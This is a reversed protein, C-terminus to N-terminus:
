SSPKRPEDRPPTLNRRRIREPYDSIIGDLGLELLREIERRDNATYAFVELGCSALASVFEESIVDLPLGVHSARADRAFGVRDVPAAGMLALTPANDDVSRVELLDRHHFSAYITPGPFGYGAVASAVQVGLGAAKLEIMAGVRGAMSALAEELTPVREGGGADLRRLEALTWDRLFGRGNTTRDILSDHFVVLDGDATIQVDIEIMDVGLDIAKRFSALTNEPAHGAAGRHGIKLTM